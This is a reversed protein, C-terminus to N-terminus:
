QLEDPNKWNGYMDGFVIDEDNEQETRIKFYLDGLRSCSPATNRIFKELEPLRGLDMEASIGTRIYWGGPLQFYVDYGWKYEQIDYPLGAGKILAKVLADLGARKQELEKHIPAIDFEEWQKEYQPINRIFSVALSVANKHNGIGFGANDEGNSNSLDKGKFQDLYIQMSMSCIEKGNHFRSSFINKNFKIYADTGELRYIYKKYNDDNSIVDVCSTWIM